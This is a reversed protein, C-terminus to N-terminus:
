AQGSYELDVYQEWCWPLFRHEGLTGLAVDSVVVVPAAGAATTAALVLVVSIPGLDEFGAM